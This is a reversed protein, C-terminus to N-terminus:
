VGKTLDNVCFEQKVTACILFNDIMKISVPANIGEYGRTDFTRDHSIFCVFIHFTQVLM